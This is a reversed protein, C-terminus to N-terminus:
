LGRELFVPADYDFISVQSRVLDSPSNWCIVIYTSSWPTIIIARYLSFPTPLLLPPLPLSLFRLVCLVGISVILTFDFITFSVGM